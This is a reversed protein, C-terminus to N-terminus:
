QHLKIRHQPQFSGSMNWNSLFDSVFIHSLVSRTNEPSLLMM